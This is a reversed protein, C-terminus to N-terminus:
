VTQSQKCEFIRYFDQLLKQEAYFLQLLEDLEDQSVSWMNGVFKFREIETEHLIGDGNAFLLSDYLISKSMNFGGDSEPDHLNSLQKVKELILEEDKCKGGETIIKNGRELSVNGETWTNIAKNLLDREKEDIGDATKLHRIFCGMQKIKGCPWFIGVRQQKIMTIRTETQM